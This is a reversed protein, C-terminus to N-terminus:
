ESKRRVGVLRRQFGASIRRPHLRAWRATLLRLRLGIGDVRTKHHRGETTKRLINVLEFRTCDGGSLHLCYLQRGQTDPPRNLVAWYAQEVFVEDDPIAFMRWTIPGVSFRRCDVIESFPINRQLRSMVFRQTVQLNASRIMNVSLARGSRRSCLLKSFVLQNSL